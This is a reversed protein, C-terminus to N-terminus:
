KKEILLFPLLIILLGRGIRNWKKFYENCKKTYIGDGSIKGNNMSENIYILENGTFYPKNFPIKM